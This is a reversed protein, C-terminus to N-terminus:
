DEKSDDGREGANVLRTLGEEMESVVSRVKRRAWIAVPCILSMALAFGLKEKAGADTTNLQAVEYLGLVSIIAHAGLLKGIGGRLILLCFFSDLLFIPKEFWAFDSTGLAALRCPLFFSTIILSNWERYGLTLGIIALAYFWIALLEAAGALKLLTRNQAQVLGTMQAIFEDQM